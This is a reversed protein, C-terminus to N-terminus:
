ARRAEPALLQFLQPYNLDSSSAYLEALVVHDMGPEPSAAHRPSGALLLFPSVLQQLTAGQLFLLATPQTWVLRNATWRRWELQYCGGELVYAGELYDSRVGYCKAIVNGGRYLRAVGDPSELLGSAPGSSSGASGRRDGDQVEQM